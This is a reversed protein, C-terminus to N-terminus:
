GALSYGETEKGAEAEAPRLRDLEDYLVFAEDMRGMAELARAKWEISTHMIEGWREKFFAGADDAHVMCDEPRGTVYAVAALRILAKHRYRTDEEAAKRLIREADHFRGGACHLDAETWRCWPPRFKEPIRGIAELGAAVDNMLLHCRAMLEPVFPVPKRSKRQWAVELSEVANEFLGKAFFIKGETFFRFVPEICKGHPDAEAFRTMYASATEPDKVALYCLVLHYLSKVCNKREMHRSGQEDMSLGEWIDVAKHFYTLAEKPKDEIRHAVMGRRYANTVSDPKLRLAAELHEIALSLREKRRKGSLGKKRAGPDLLSNYATYGLSSNLRFSDPQLVLAKQLEEVAADSEGMQGLAFAIEGRIDAEHVTGLCDPRREELPYAETIIGQWRADRAMVKLREILRIGPEASRPKRNEWPLILAMPVSNRPQANSNSLNTQM